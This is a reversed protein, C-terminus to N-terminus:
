RVPHHGLTVSLQPWDSTVGIRITRIIGFTALSVPARLKLDKLDIGNRLRKFVFLTLFKILVLIELRAIVLTRIHIVKLIGGCSPPM